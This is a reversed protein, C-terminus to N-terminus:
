MMEDLSSIGSSIRETTAEQALGLSTVPMVWIGSRTVLFPYENPGHASGRYKVVKLRRTSIQETIRHDLVIVCDSVYEEISHRTLAGEGREGTIVATVGRDKLWRFLRALESRLMGMNPLGAFLSEVTDLVVRKAGVKRIASELRIFLGELDYWYREGSSVWGHESLSVWRSPSNTPQTSSM